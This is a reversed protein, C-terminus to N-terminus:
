KERIFYVCDYNNIVEYKGMIEMYSATSDLKAIYYEEHTQTMLIGITFAVIFVGFLAMFAEGPKFKQGESILYTVATILIVALLFAIVIIVWNSQAPVTALIELGNM